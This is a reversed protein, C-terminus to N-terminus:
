NRELLKRTQLRIHVKVDCDPQEGGQKGRAHEDSAM